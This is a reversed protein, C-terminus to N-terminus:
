DSSQAVLHQAHEARELPGHLHGGPSRWMQACPTQLAAHIAGLSLPMILIAVKGLGFLEQQLRNGFGIPMM